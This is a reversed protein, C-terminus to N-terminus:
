GRSTLHFGDGSRCAYVKLKVGRERQIIQARKIAATESEYLQKNCIDCYRSPTVRDNPALHWKGCIDCHYPVVRNHYTRAVYMAAQDAEFKTDYEKITKGPKCTANDKCM